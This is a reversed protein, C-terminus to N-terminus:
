AVAKIGADEDEALLADVLKDIESDAPKILIRDRGPIVEVGIKKLDKAPLKELAAKVPKETIAILVDEKDAFHERILEIVKEDSAIGLSGKSKQLGVKIGHLVRTKPKVFLGKSEDIAANLDDHANAAKSVAERITALQTEKVRKIAAELTELQRRLDDRATAFAETLGDIEEMTKAM